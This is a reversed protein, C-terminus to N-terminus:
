AAEKQQARELANRYKRRNAEQRATFCSPCRCGLEDYAARGHVESYAIHRLGQRAANMAVRAANARRNRMYAAKAARCTTCHCGRSYTVYGHVLDDRQTALAASM